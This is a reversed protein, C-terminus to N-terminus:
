NVEMGGPIQQIDNQEYLRLIVAFLRTLIVWVADKIPKVLLTRLFCNLCPSKFFTTPCTVGNLVLRCLAEEVALAGPLDSFRCFCAGVWM